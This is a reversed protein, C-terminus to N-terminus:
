VVAKCSPATVCHCCSCVLGGSFGPFVGRFVGNCFGTSSAKPTLCFLQLWYTQNMCGRHTHRAKLDSVHLGSYSWANANLIYLGSHSGTDAAKQCDALSAHSACAQWSKCLESPAAFSPVCLSICPMAFQVSPIVYLTLHHPSHHASPTVYLTITSPVHHISPTVYLTVCPLAHTYLFIVGKAIGFRDLNESSAASIM